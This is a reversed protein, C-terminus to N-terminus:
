GDGGPMESPGLNSTGFPAGPVAASTRGDDARRLERGAKEREGKM